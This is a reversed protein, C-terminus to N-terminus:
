LIAPEVLGDRDSGRSPYNRQGQHAAAGPRGSPRTGEGTREGQKHLEGSTGKDPSLRVAKGVQPGNQRVRGMTQVHNRDFRRAM